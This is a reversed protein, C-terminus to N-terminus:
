FAHSISSDKVIFFRRTEELAGKFAFASRACEHFMSVCGSAQPTEIFHAHTHIMSHALTVPGSGFFLYM